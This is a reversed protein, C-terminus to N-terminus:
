EVKKVWQTAADHLASISGKNYDPFSLSFLVENQAPPTMDNQKPVQGSNPTLLAYARERMDYYFTVQHMGKQFVLQKSLSAQIDYQSESFGLPLLTERLVNCMQTYAQTEKSDPFMKSFLKSFM